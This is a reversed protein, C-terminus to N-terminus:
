FCLGPPRSSDVGNGKCLNGAYTNDDAFDLIGFEGNGKSGNRTFTSATAFVTFGDLGNTEASNLIVTHEQGDIVFGSGGNDRSGNRDVIAHDGLVILGDFGSGLVVNRSVVSDQGSVIMGILDSGETRNLRVENRAGFVDIGFLGSRTVVNSEVHNDEGEVLIGWTASDDVLVRSIRVGTVGEGAVGTDFGVIRGIRVAAAATEPPFRIGSCQNGAQARITGGIQLTVGPALILGDCPCRTKLVPDSGRLTTSTVVVDGCHCPGVGNGCPAGLAPSMAGGALAIFVVALTVFRARLVALRM